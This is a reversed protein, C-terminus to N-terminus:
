QNQLLVLRLNQSCLDADPHFAEVHLIYNGSPVINSLKHTPILLLGQESVQVFQLPTIIANGQMSFLTATVIFGPKNFAHHLQIPDNPDMFYCTKQLLFPNKNKKIATNIEPMQSNKEGPTAFGVTQTASIWHTQIISPASPSTKELSVGKETLLFSSHQNSNYQMQDIQSQDLNNLILMAKTSPLNPFNNVSMHNISVQPNYGRSLVFGNGSYCLMQNPLLTFPKTHLTTIEPAQLEQLIQLQLGGLQLASQSTNILEIFDYSDELANFMVENFQLQNPQPSKNCFAIQQTIQILSDGNCAIANEFQINVIENQTLPPSIHFKWAANAVHPQSYYNTETALYKFQHTLTSESCTIRPIENPNVPLNCLVLLTDTSLAEIHHLQFNIKPSPQPTRPSPWPKPMSNPLGPTGGTSSNSHWNCLDVCAYNTDTKELSYGGDAFSPHHLYRFHNFQHIIENRSNRLTLQDNDINIYPFDVALSNPIGKTISSDKPQTLVVIQQPQILYKPLAIKTQQDSLSLENLWLSQNTNNKLEIYQCNPLHGLSPTPDVMIENFTIQYPLIPTECEVFASKKQLPQINQATDKANQVHVWHQQNCSRGPFQARIISPTTYFYTDAQLFECILQNKNSIEIPESFQLEVLTPNIWKVTNLLPPSVDPRPPGVYYSKLQHKGAAGSGTQMIGIGHHNQSVPMTDIAAGLCKYKEWASDKYLVIIQQSQKVIRISINSKSKNFFGAEGKLELLEASQKKRYLKIGDDTDGLRLLWGNKHSSDAHFYLDIYNASSPNFDLFIQSELWTNSDMTCKATLTIYQKTALVPINSVLTKKNWTFFQPQGLFQM